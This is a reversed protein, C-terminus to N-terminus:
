SDRTYIAWNGLLIRVYYIVCLLQGAVVALVLDGQWEQELWWVAAPPICGLVVALGKVLMLQWFKGAHSDDQNLFSLVENRESGLGRKIVESTTHLDMVQIAVNIVALAISLLLLIQLASM